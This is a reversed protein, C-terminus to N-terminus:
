SHQTTKLKVNPHNFRSIQKDTRLEYFHRIVFRISINCGKGNLQSLSIFANDEEDWVIGKIVFPNNNKDTIIDGPQAQKLNDFYIQSISV